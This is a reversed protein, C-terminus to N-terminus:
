EHDNDCYLLFEDRTMIRTAFESELLGRRGHDIFARADNSVFIDRGERVHAHFIIADRLQRRENLTLDSRNRPFSGNTIVQLIRELRHDDEPAGYTGMGYPGEDWVATEPLADMHSLDARFPTNGLERETVSVVAFSFGRAELLRLQGAPLVNTDLTVSPM